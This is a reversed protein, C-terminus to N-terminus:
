EPDLSYFLRKLVNMNTKRSHTKPYELPMESVDGGGIIESVKGAAQKGLAYRDIEVVAAAGLTLYSSAFSILPVNNQHAFRFYVEVTERTVATSDPLMWLADVTGSLTALQGMTQRPDSVERAVLEMGAEAAARHAQKLYWGSKAPNYLVGCRKTKMKRFISIYREPAVFM